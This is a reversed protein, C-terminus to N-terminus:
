GQHGKYVRELGAQCAVDVSRAALVAARDVTVLKIAETPCAAVCAPTGACLDCAGVVFRSPDWHLVGGGRRECAELCRECGACAERDLNVAGSGPDVHLAKRHHLRDAYYDCASVCPLDPCGLCSWAVFYPGVFSHVQILSRRPDGM